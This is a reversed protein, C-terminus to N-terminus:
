STPEAFNAEGARRAFARGRTLQSFLRHEAAVIDRAAITGHERFRARDLSWRYLNNGEFGLILNGTIKTITFIEAPLDAAYVITLIIAQIALYIAFVIWMKKALFWVTPLFLASWSFGDKVLVASTAMGTLSNEAEQPYHVTYLNM